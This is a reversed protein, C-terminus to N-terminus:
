LALRQLHTINKMWNYSVWRQIFSDSRRESDDHNMAGFHKRSSMGVFDSFTNASVHHTVGCIYLTVLFMQSLPHSRNYM